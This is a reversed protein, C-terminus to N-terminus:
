AGLDLRRDWESGVPRGPIGGQPWRWVSTELHSGASYFPVIGGLTVAKDGGIVAALVDEDVGRGDFGRAEARQVFALLDAVFDLAVLAGALFGGTAKRRRLLVLKKARRGDSEVALHRLEQRQAAPLDAQVVAM